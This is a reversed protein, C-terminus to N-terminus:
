FCGAFRYFFIKKKETTSWMLSADLVIETNGYGSNKLIERAGKYALSILSRDVNEMVYWQPRVSSVIEAFSKTLIQGTEKEGTELM